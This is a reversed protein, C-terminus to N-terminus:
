CGRWARTSTGRRRRSGRGTGGRCCGRRSRFGRRTRRSRSSTRTRRSSACGRRGAGPPRHRLLRLAGEGRLAAERRRDRGARLRARDAARHAALARARADGRGHRGPEQLGPHLSAASGAQSGGRARPVGVARARDGGGVDVRADQRSRADRHDGRARRHREDPRVDRRRRSRARGGGAAGPVQQPRRARGLRALEAGGGNQRYALVEPPTLAERGPCFPCQERDVISPREFRFDNPRKRRETSIIVWRGTVPDKRLEPVHNTTLDNTTLRDNASLRFPM